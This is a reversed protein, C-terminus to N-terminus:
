DTEKVAHLMTVGLWPGSYWYRPGLDRLTGHGLHAAYQRAMPWFDAVLLQGGPRLVRVAEDLARLRRERSPINHIALASTVVDFSGDAFPLDTMDATRVEVRDLVGAAAANALTAEPRNGSQDTGSWLDVGVARGSPLHAAAQVLVAGRGCGLDLLREDGSLGARDLEQEWVRLKGRLTTHLYVGTGALLVTGLAAAATSGRRWRRATLGCAAGALGLAAPFAPADVGYRLRDRHAPPATNASTSTM